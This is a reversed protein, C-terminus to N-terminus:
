RGLDDIILALGIGLMWLDKAVGIGEQTPRVSGEQTMGPANLYLRLTAISFATLGLGALWSPIVPALLAVGLATESASLAKAFPEPEIQEVAPVATTAMSHLTQAQEAPADRKGLGSSLFFVGTTVRLPVHSLKM